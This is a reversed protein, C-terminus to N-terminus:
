FMKMYMYSLFCPKFLSVTAVSAAEQPLDTGSNYGISHKLLEQATRILSLGFDVKESPVPNRKILLTKLWHM